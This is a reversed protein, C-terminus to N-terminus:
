VSKIKAGEKAGSKDDSVAPVDNGTVILDRKSAELAPRADIQKPEVRRCLGQVFAGAEIALSNHNIDGTIKATRIVEVIRGTIEGNVTGAVRIIEGVVCGNVAASVGITLLNSEVDGDVVGDIQIDGDTKLNGSIRLDASIISPVKPNDPNKAM